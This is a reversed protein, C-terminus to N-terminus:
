GAALAASLEDVWQKSGDAISAVVVNSRNTTWGVYTKGDHHFARPDGFFSWAGNTTLKYSTYYASATGQFAILCTTAALAAIFLNRARM